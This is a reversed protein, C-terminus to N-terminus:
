TTGKVEYKKPKSKAADPSCPPVDGAAAGAGADARGGATSASSSGPPKAHLETESLVPWPGPDLETGANMCGQDNL